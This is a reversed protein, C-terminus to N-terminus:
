KPMITQYVWTLASNTATSMPASRWPNSFVNNAAQASPNTISTLIRTPEYTWKTWLGSWGQTTWWTKLDSREKVLADYRAKGWL